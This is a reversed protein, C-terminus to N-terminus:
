NPMYSKRQCKNGQLITFTPGEERHRLNASVPCDICLFDIGAPTTRVHMIGLRRRIEPDFPADVNEQLEAVLIVLCDDAVRAGM